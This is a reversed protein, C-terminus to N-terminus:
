GVNLENLIGFFFDRENQHNTRIKEVIKVSDSQEM